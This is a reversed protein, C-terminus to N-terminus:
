LFQKRLDTVFSKTKNTKIARLWLGPIYTFILINKMLHFYIEILSLTQM